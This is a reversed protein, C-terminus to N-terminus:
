SSPHGCSLCCLVGILPNGRGALVEPPHALGSASPMLNKLRWVLWELWLLLLEVVM